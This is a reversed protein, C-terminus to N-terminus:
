CVMRTGAGHNTGGARRSREELRRAARISGELSRPTKRSLRKSLPAFWYWWTELSDRASMRERSVSKM